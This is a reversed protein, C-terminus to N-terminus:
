TTSTARAPRRPQPTSPTDRHRLAMAAGLMEQLDAGMVAIEMNLYFAWTVWVPYAERVAEALNSGTVVGYRAALEQLVLSEATSWFVVWSQTLATYAGLQLDAELNGPDIYALSVLLGPGLSTLITRLSFRPREPAPAPPLLLSDEKPRM